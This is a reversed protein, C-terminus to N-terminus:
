QPVVEQVIVEKQLSTLQPTGKVAWLIDPYTPSKIYDVLGVSTDRDVFVNAVRSVEIGGEKLQDEAKIVQFFGQVEEETEDYIPLGRSDTGTKTRHVLTLTEQFQPLVTPFFESAGPM